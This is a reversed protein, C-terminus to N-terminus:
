AGGVRTGTYIARLTTSFGFEPLELADELGTLTYPQWDMRRARVEMSVEKQAMVLVYLNEPHQVYRVRKREIQKATNSESLVECALLFRDTWHATLDITSDIVAVDCTPRFRKVRPVLLGIEQVALLDSNRDEFHNNLLRALKGGLVQHRLTPPNMVVVDGEILQWREGHPRQEVFAVFEDDTMTAPIHTKSITATAM